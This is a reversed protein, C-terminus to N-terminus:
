ACPRQHGVESLDAGAAPVVEVVADVGSGRSVALFPTGPQLAHQRQVAHLRDRISRLVEDGGVEVPGNEKGTLEVRSLGARGFDSRFSAELLWKSARWDGLAYKKRTETVMEGTDPDRYRRTTEEILQGGQAARAVLTVNVVAVKARANLVRARYARYAEQRETLLVGEDALAEAHEGAGMARFHARESIGSYICAQTIPVGAETAGIMAAVRHEDEV